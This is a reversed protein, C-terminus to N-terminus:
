CKIGCKSSFCWNIISPLLLPIKTKYWTNNNEGFGQSNEVNLENNSFYINKNPVIHGLYNYHSTWKRFHNIMNLDILILILYTQKSKLFSKILVFMKNPM